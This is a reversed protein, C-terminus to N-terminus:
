KADTTQEQDTYASHTVSLPTATANDVAERIADLDAEISRYNDPVWDVLATSGGTLVAYWTLATTYRGYDYSMHHGDRTLIDGVYSTRLNQIATGCPIIGDILPHTAVVQMYTSVIANYMTMQDSGYKPFSSHKSDAQYAWTLHWYLEASPVSESLYQLIADLKTYTHSEGSYSSAQQITIVDWAEDALATSISVNSTARWKGSTNKYYTYANANAQINEYHKDLSCGGIYLHGIVITEVGADHCISWLYEVADQSFSNGIALVKLTKTAPLTERYQSSCHPCTRTQYGDKLPKASVRETLMYAHECNAAEAKVTDCRECSCSVWDGTKGDPTPIPTAASWTHGAAPVSDEKVDTFQKTDITATATHTDTGDTACTPELTRVTSITASASTAYGCGNACQASLTAADSGNWTWTLTEATYAHGKAALTRRNTATLTQDGVTVRATYTCIGETLCTPATTTENRVTAKITCTHTSDDTCTLTANAGYLANWTWVISDPDYNCFETGAPITASETKNCLSCHRTQTGDTQCTAALETEWESWEHECGCSVLTASCLLLLVLLIPVLHSKRLM